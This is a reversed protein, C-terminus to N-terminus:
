NGWGPLDLRRGDAVSVDGVASVFAEYDDRVVDTYQEAFALVADTVNRGSGIYSALAVPDGTRAHARALAWGCLQAHMTLGHRDLESVDLDGKMDWLQRVYYYRGTTPNRTWGLLVDGVAQMLKQGVVVRRGQHRPGPGAVHPALVSPNAEKLQILMQDSPDGSDLVAVFCRTGVSGVGVAKFALDRIRYRRMMESWEPPLSSLYSTLMADAQPGEAVRQLRPPRERFRPVGDDGHEVFKQAARSASRTRAKEAHTRVQAARREDLHANITSGDLRAYWVELGPMDAYTSMHECFSAIATTAIKAAAKSSLGSEQAALLLSVALRKLDWEFPGRYTEDFDNLDFVLRREPSGFIGFNAAHADGCIQAHLKTSPSAGLDAAMIVASGRFFAHPSTSMREHRLPLLSQVRDTEQAFVAGVRNTTSALVLDGLSSRARRKRELRGYAEREARTLSPRRM